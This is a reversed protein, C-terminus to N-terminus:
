KKSLFGEYVAVTEDAMRAASFLTDLRDEGNLGMYLRLERDPLLLRLADAIAQPDRPPVLIGSETHAVVEPIASVASAIVPIRRSMAELLVLGFGEWLSPMLFVDLGALFAPADKRWGIFRTRVALNRQRAEAELVPQLEGEGAIVLHVDRFEYFIQEFAQLAYTIGKQEVLRCAMGILLTDPPLGLEARLDARAKATEAPTIHAYEIGYTVVHVQEHPAGELTTTFQKLADSIAIGGSLGRWLWRNLTKVAPHHRFDDDNHRGTLIIRIGALKAALLGFLDAHILHTHVIDPKLHRLIRRLRFIVYTDADRYIIVRQVPIHRKEAEAVMETMLNGPEVLMLLHADVQRRRLETLLILLHREAGGIRTAKIIHVVRM